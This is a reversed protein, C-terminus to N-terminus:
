SSALDRRTTQSPLEPQEQQRSSPPQEDWQRRPVGSPVPPASWEQPLSHIQGALPAVAASIAPTRVQAARPSRVRALIRVQAALLSRARALTKTPSALQVLSPLASWPLASSHWVGSRLARWRIAPSHMVLPTRKAAEQRESGAQEPLSREASREQEQQQEVLTSAPLGLARPERFFCVELLRAVPRRLASGSSVLAAMQLATALLVPVALVSVAPVGPLSLLRVVRRLVRTLWAAPSLLALEALTWRRHMLVLPMTSGQMAAPARRQQVALAVRAVEHPCSRQSVPRQSKVLSRLACRLVSYVQRALPLAERVSAMVPWKMVSWKM